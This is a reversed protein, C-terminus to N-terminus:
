GDQGNKRELIRTTSFGEVFPLIVVEALDRGVVDEASYDGGKTIIDPKIKKILEYPTEEDFVVVEDVCDLSELVAKRDRESVFPRDNGKLKKISSDSNIGVVLRCGLARSKKLYEVHGRHLIDFCGNTFVTKTLRMDEEQLVYTGFKTVSISALVNAKKCSDLLSNGTALFHTMTAIFVDGAGTVDAVQRSECPVHGEFEDSSIYVGRSGLTVVLSGIQYKKRIAHLEDLSECNTYEFLEKENLKIIDAKQYNYLPKKPDVIVFCGQRKCSDVINQARHVFGKNYDSIICFKSGLMDYEYNENPHYEELDARFLIHNQVVYRCKIPVNEQYHYHVVRQGLARLNSAVNLSGGPKTERSNEKFVPIPSEPSVRDASGYIYVDKIADGIVIIMKKTELFMLYFKGDM